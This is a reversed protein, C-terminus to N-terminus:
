ACSSWTRATGIKIFEGLPEDLHTSLSDEMSFWTKSLRGRSWLQICTAYLLLHLRLPKVSVTAHWFKIHPCSGTCPGSCLCQVCGQPKHLCVFFPEACLVPRLAQRLLCKTDIPCPDPTCLAYAVRCLVVLIVGNERYLDDRGSLGISGVTSIEKLMGGGLRGVWYLCVVGWYVSGWGRGCGARCLLLSPVRRIM